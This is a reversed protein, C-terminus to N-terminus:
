IVESSFRALDTEVIVVWVVVGSVRISASLSCGAKKIDSSLDSM